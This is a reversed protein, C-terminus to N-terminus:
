LKKLSEIKVPYKYQRGAFEKVTAMDRGSSVYLRIVEGSLPEGAFLFSVRDRLRIKAM